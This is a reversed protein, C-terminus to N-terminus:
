LGLSKEITKKKEAKIIKEANEKEEFIDKAEKGMLIIKTTIYNRTKDSVNDTFECKGVNRTGNNVKKYCVFLLVPRPELSYIAVTYKISTYEIGVPYTDFVLNLGQKKVQIDYDTYIKYVREINQSITWSPYPAFSLM